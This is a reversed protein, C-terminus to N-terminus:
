EYYYGTGNDAIVQKAGNVVLSYKKETFIRSLARRNGNIITEFVASTEYDANQVYFLFAHRGPASKIEEVIKHSVQGTLKASCLIDQLLAALQEPRRSRLVSDGVVARMADFIRAVQWGNGDDGGEFWPYADILLSWYTLKEM